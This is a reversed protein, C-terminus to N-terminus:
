GIAPRMLARETRNPTGNSAKKASRLAQGADDKRFLFRLTV